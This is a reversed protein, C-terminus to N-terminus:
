YLERLEIDIDGSSLGFQSRLADDLENQQLARILALLNPEGHKEVLWRVALMAQTYVDGKDTRRFAQWQPEATMASLPFMERGPRPWLSIDLPLWRGDDLDHCYRRAFYGAFGEDLWKARKFARGWITDVFAHTLEHCVNEPSLDPPVYFQQGLPRPAGSVQFYSVDTFGSLHRLDALFADRTQYVRLNLPPPKVGTLDLLREYAVLYATNVAVVREPPVGPEVVVHARQNESSVATNAGDKTTLRSAALTAACSPTKLCRAIELSVALPDERDIWLDPQEGHGERVIRTPDTDHFWKRGAQMWLGSAPLRYRRTEGFIGVGATNEGVVLTSPLQRSYMVFSECASACMRDVLVIVTGQYPEPAVGDHKPKRLLWTRQDPSSAELQALAEQRTEQFDKRGAEDLEGRALTCTAWNVTGQLTTQSELEEIVPYHFTGASLNLFFDRAYNDRGGGNGRLDVVFVPEKRLHKAADVFATMQEDHNPSFSTVRLVPIEGTTMTFVRGDSESPSLLFQRFTVTRVSIGKASRVRCALPQPPTESLRVLISAPHGRAFAPQMLPELNDNSCDVVPEHDFFLTGDKHTVEADAVFADMHSGTSGWPHWKGNSDIGWFALHGDRAFHFTNLLFSHFSEVAIPGDLQGLRKRASAFVEDWDNEQAAIVEYGAYGTRLVTEVIAFDSLAEPVTIASASTEGCEHERVKLSHVRPGVSDATTTIAQPPPALPAQAVQLKCGILSVCAVAIVAAIACHVLTALDRM